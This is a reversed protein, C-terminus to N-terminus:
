VAQAEKRFRRQALVEQFAELRIRLQEIDQDYYDTELRCVPISHNAFLEEMRELEFDYEIQGKLVHYVVGDIQKKELFRSVAELLANNKTYASSCDRKYFSRILAQLTLTKEMHYPRLLRETTDDLQAAINLNVDHILLPLKYNPFYVPSGLLLVCGSRKHPKQIRSGMLQGNLLHLHRAWDEMNDAWYYSHLIFLRWLDPLLEPHECTIKWFHQIQKRAEAIQRQAKQLGRQTIRHGTYKSIADACAEGQRFREVDSTQGQTPPIYLTHVRYGEAKLIAALKRTSDNVLSILILMDKPFFEMNHQLCGLAARSVPDTDRPVFGDALASLIRSGELIWYPIAGSAMILEEPIASGLIILSHKEGSSHDICHHRRVLDLFYDVNINPPLCSLLKEVTKELEVQKPLNQKGDTLISM